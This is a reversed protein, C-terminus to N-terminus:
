LMGTKNSSQVFKIQTDGEGGRVHIWWGDGLSTPSTSTPFIEAALKCCSQGPQNGRERTGVEGVDWEGDDQEPSCAMTKKTRLTNAKVIVLKKKEM